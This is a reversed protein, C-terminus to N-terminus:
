RLTNDASIILVFVVVILFIFFNDAKVKARNGAKVSRQREELKRNLSYAFLPLIYIWTNTIHLLSFLFLCLRVGM